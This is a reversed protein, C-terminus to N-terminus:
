LRWQRRTQASCLAKSIVLQDGYAKEPTSLLSEEKRLAASFDKWQCRDGRDYSANEFAQEPEGSGSTWDVVGKSM